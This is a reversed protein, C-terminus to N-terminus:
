KMIDCNNLKLTGGLIKFNQNLSFFQLVKRIKTVFLAIKPSIFFMKWLKFPKKPLIRFYRVCAKAKALFNTFLFSTIKTKIIVYIHMFKTISWNKSIKIQGVYIGWVYAHNKNHILEKIDNKTWPPDRDNSIVTGHPFSYSKCQKCLPILGRNQCDGKEM